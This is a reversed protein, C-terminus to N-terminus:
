RTCPTVKSIVIVQSAKATSSTCYQYYAWNLIQCMRLVKIILNVLQSTLRVIKYIKSPWKGAKTEQCHPWCCKSVKSWSISADMPIRGALKCFAIHGMDPTSYGTGHDCLQFVSGGDHWDGVAMQVTHQSRVRIFTVFQQLSHRMLMNVAEWLM